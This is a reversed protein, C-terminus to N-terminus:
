KFRSFTKFLRDKKLWIMMLGIVFIGILAARSIMTIGFDPLNETHRLYIGFLAWIIVSGYYLDEQLLTTLAGIIIAIILIILTMIQQSVEGGNWLWRFRNADSVILTTVNAVTAITIWGFYIRFPIFIKGSIKKIIQNIFILAILIVIMWLLSLYFQLYHWSIIWLGNALSSIGFLIDIQNLQKITLKELFQDKLKVRFFLYISLGIYIVAWISFTLGTPAFYNFYLDSIEGTSLGNLPLINALANMVLAFLFSVLAFVLAAQKKMAKLLSYNM